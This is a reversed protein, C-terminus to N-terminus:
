GGLRVIYSVSTLTKTVFLKRRQLLRTSKIDTISGLRVNLSYFNLLLVGDRCLRSRYDRRSPSSHRSGIFRDHNASVTSCVVLLDDRKEDSDVSLERRVM